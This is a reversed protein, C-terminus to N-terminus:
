RPDFRVHTVGKRGQALLSLVMTVSKGKEPALSKPVSTDSHGSRERKKGARHTAAFGEFKNAM